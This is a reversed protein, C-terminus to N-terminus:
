NAQELHFIIDFSVNDGQAMNDSDTPLWKAYLVFPREEGALLMGSATKMSVGDAANLSSFSPSLHSWPSINEQFYGSIKDGLEGETEDCTTDGINVEPANCENENNIVNAIEIWYKGDISGSNKVKIQGVMENFGPQVNEITYRTAVSDGDKGDVKLDLTGATFTNGVSTEQDSFLAKTSEFAAISVAAIALMSLLIKKM